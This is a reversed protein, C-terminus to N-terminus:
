KFLCVPPNVLAISLPAFPISNRNLNVAKSITGTITSNNVTGGKSIIEWPDYSGNNGNLNVQVAYNNTRDDWSTTATPSSLLSVGIQGFAQYAALSIKFIDGVKMTTANGVTSGDDTFNKWSVVQKAGSSNAYMGLEDAGNDFAGATGDTFTDNYSSNQQTYAITTQAQIAFCFVLSLMTLLYNKKM